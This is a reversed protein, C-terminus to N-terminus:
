PRLSLQRRGRIWKWSEAAIAEAETRLKEAVLRELLAIDELWGGGDEEFLGRLVSGGAAEHATVGVFRARKDSALVARETLVRRIQYLEDHGSRNVNRFSALVAFSACFGRGDLWSM